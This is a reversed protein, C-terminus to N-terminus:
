SGTGSSVTSTLGPPVSCTVCPEPPLALVAGHKFQLKQLVLFLREAAHAPLKGSAVLDALVRQANSTPIHAADGSKDKGNGKAVRATDTVEAEDAENGHPKDAKAAKSEKPEKAEHAEPAEAEDADNGHAKAAKGHEAGNTSGKGQSNGKGSGGDKALAATPLALLAAMAAAAILKPLHM